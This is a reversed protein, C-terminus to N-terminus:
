SEGKGCPREKYEQVLKEIFIKIDGAWRGDNNRGPAFAHNSFHEKWWERAEDMKGADILEYLEARNARIQAVAVPANIELAELIFDCWSSELFIVASQHYLTHEYCMFDMVAHFFVSSALERYPDEYNMM